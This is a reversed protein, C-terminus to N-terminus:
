EEILLAAAILLVHHVARGMWVPAHVIEGRHVEVAVRIDVEQEGMAVREVNSQGELEIVPHLPELIPAVGLEASVADAAEVARVAGFGDISKM